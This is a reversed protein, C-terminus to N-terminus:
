EIEKIQKNLHNIRRNSYKALRRCGDSLKPPLYKHVELKNLGDYVTLFEKMWGVDDIETRKFSSLVKKVLLNILVESFKGYQTEQARTAFGNYISM